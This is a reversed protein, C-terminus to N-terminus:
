LEVTFSTVQPLYAAAALDVIHVDDYATAGNYGGIYFIRSDYLLSGHYGRATPAKGLVSRQEYQLTILNFLKLDAVYEAGNHGGQIFLYSGVQTSTHSLRKFSQPLDVLTWQLTDLNLCWVESFCNNGDSGGIVIMMNGVLNATHYGRPSPFMTTGDKTKMGKTNVMKWEMRLPSGHHSTTQHSNSTGPRSITEGATGAGWVDLTWVDNLATMGNGGGFVWVKGKYYVASHARRATPKWTPNKEEEKGEDGVIIPKTWKRTATDLIYVANSYHTGQGGGFILIRSRDILTASHARSPPPQEGITQPYSWQNIEVDFCYLDKATDRDDCGGFVWATDGVLTVTHGRMTRSPCVGWVPARSWYMLPPPASEAEKDHPLRPTSRYKTGGSSSSSAPRNVSGKTTPVSLLSTTSSVSPTRRSSGERGSGSSSQTPTRSGSPKRSGKPRGSSSGGGSSSNSKGNEGHPSHHVIISPSSLATTTTPSSSSSAPQSQTYTVSSTSTNRGSISHPGLTTSSGAAQPTSYPMTPSMKLDVEPTTFPGHEPVDGLPTRVGMSHQMSESSSATSLPRSFYSNGSSSNSNNNVQQTDDYDDNLDFPTAFPSSIASRQM